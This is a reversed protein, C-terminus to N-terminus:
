SGQGFLITNLRAAEAPSTHGAEVHARIKAELSTGHLAEMALTIQNGDGKIIAEKLNKTPVTIEYFPHMGRYGSNRCKDCGRSESFRGPKLEPLNLRQLEPASFNIERRCDPCINRVLIQFVVAGIGGYLQFPPVNLNLLQRFVESSNRAHMQTLVLIGDGAAKFCELATEEDSLDEVVLVHPEARVATRIAAAMTLGIHPKVHICSIGEFSRHIRGVEFIIRSGDNLLSTATELTTTKGSGHPGSFVIVGSQLNQVLETIKRRQAEDPFVASVPPPVEDPRSFFLLVQEGLVTPVLQVRVDVMEDDVKILIRGDQPLQNESIDLASMLKFRAVVRDYTSKDLTEQLELTNRRAVSLKVHDREPKFVVRQMKELVADRIIQNVLKIVHLNSDEPQGATEIIECGGSGAAITGDALSDAIEVMGRDLNGQSESAKAMAVYVETFVGPFMGLCASFTFGEKLRAIMKTIIISIPSEFEERQ